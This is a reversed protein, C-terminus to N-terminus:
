KKEAVIYARPEGLNFKKKGPISWAEKMIFGALNLMQETENLSYIYDIARKEETKGNPDIFINQMEIRSPSLLFRSDALFKIDGVYSWTKEKFGNAIIENLRWSCIIFKGGTKVHKSVELFIKLVDGADFFCISNGMCIAGQYEGDLELKLVDEQLCEVPLNEKQATSKIEEVYEKLNDIATVHIGKRALPLTHRGYGCMLDIMKNGPQLNTEQLIWENEAKTLGDPILQRWIKKYVGDFFSNNINETTTAQM